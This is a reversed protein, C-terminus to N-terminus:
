GDIQNSMVRALDEQNSMQGPSLSQRTMLPPDVVAAGKSWVGEFSVGTAGQTPLPLQTVAVPPLNPSRPNQQFTM